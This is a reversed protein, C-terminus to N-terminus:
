IGYAAVLIQCLWIFLFLNKEKLPETQRNQPSYVRPPLPSFLSTILRFYHALYLSRKWILQTDNRDLIQSRPQIIPYSFFLSNM